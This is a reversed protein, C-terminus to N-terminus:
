PRQTRMCAVGDEAEGIEVIVRCCLGKSEQIYERGNKCWGNVDDIPSGGGRLMLSAAIFSQVADGRSRAGLRNAVDEHRDRADGVVPRSAPSGRPADVLDIRSESSKVRRSSIM